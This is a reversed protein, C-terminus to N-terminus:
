DPTVDLAGAAINSTDGANVVKSADLAGSWLCNGAAGADWIAVHTVTCAPMGTFAIAGTNSTAGSAAADFGAQVRAYSGGTVENAGTEGPDATHLSVYPDGALGFSTANFIADLIKNEAYNSITM